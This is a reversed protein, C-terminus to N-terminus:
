NGCPPGRRRPPRRTLASIPSTGLTELWTRRLPCGPRPRDGGDDGGGAVRARHWGQRDDVGDRREPATSAGASEEGGFALTGDTLGPVFWKFGVPVEVLPRGLRGAVRDIMSTSVLTKGVGAAAPWSPRHAFLYAIAAALYHNPNLLGAGATVVGHRDHDTDCAWAVDFRNKLHLLRQMAYPSSPDMRIQGDWDVTMFRFTPDVEASVVTLPLGYHEAIRGWYAVGAGGLPDVGFRLGSRKVAEMDVVNALDAVYAGMFDHPRTTAAQTAREFTVRQVQTNDDGLLANAREEIWRTVATEAPGGHPPNYKFGGDRPPNHSPTIVIGDARAKPRPRNHVLIAHSVVPTPTYGHEADIRVEVGNAALVELASAWASASLAHTDAGLFLPGTIEQGRRYDCIAQTTALIHSENFATDLSSGRHGSTGFAVRQAAVHVDPHLTYYATMLRPVDVLMDPTAPKGARPDIKM